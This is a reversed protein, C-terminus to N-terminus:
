HVGVGCGIGKFGVDGQERPDQVAKQISVVVTQPGTESTFIGM